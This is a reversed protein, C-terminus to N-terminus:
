PNCYLESFVEFMTSKFYKKYEKPKKKASEWSESDGDLEMIIIKFQSSTM